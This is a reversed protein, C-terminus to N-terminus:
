CIRRLLDCGGRDRVPQAPATRQCRAEARAERLDTIDRAIAEYRLPRNDADRVLWVRNNVLRMSGDPRIIRYEAEAYGETLLRTHMARAFESDDPHVMTLRTAFKEQFEHLHGGM